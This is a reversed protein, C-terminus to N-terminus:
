EHVAKRAKPNSGWPPRQDVTALGSTPPSRLSRPWKNVVAALEPTRAILQAPIAGQERMLDSSDHSSSRGISVKHSKRVDALRARVTSEGGASEIGQVTAEIRRVITGVGEFAGMGEGMHSVSRQVSGSAPSDEAQRRSPGELVLQARGLLVQEELLGGEESDLWDGMSGAAGGGMVTSGGAAGLYGSGPDGSLWEEDGLQELERGAYPAGEVPNLTKPPSKSGASWKTRTPSAPPQGEAATSWRARSSSSATVLPLSPASAVAAAAAAAATGEDKTASARVSEGGSGDGGSHGAAPAIYPNVTAASGSAPESPGVQQRSTVNAAAGTTVLRGRTQSGLSSQLVLRGSAGSRGGSRGVQSLTTRTTTTVAAPTVTSTTTTTSTRGLLSAEGGGGGGGGRGGAGRGAGARQTVAVRRAASTSSSPSPSSSRASVERRASSGFAPSAGRIAMTGGGGGTRGGAAGGGRGASQHASSGASRGAGGAAAAAATAGLRSPGARPSQVRVAASAVSGAAAAAGTRAAVRASAAAGAAAGSGSASSGRGGPVGGSSTLSGATLNSEGSDSRNSSVLVGVTSRASTRVGVSGGGGGGVAATVTPATVPCYRPSRSGASPITRGFAVRPTLPSMAASSAARPTRVPSGPPAATPGM